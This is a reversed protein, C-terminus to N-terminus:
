PLTYWLINLYIFQSINLLVIKLVFYKFLKEYMDFCHKTNIIIEDIYCGLLVIKELM